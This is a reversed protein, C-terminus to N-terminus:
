DGKKTVMTKSRIGLVSVDKIAEALEDETMGAPYVEVQYGEGKLKEIASPHINELLLAKIRNKPYSHARELKQTYLFEELTPAEHDAENLVKERRVNETFAYFKNAMGAKKIEFDTFGDGLVFIEGDLKLKEIQKPKGNNESLINDPNFGTVKGDEDYEFENAFVHDEKIGYEKVIPVIFDKFGNSVIFIQERYKEIFETNRKFSHSVVEALDTSWSLYISKIRRCFILDKIYLSKLLFVVM